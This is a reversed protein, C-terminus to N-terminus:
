RSRDYEDDFGEEASQRAILYAKRADVGALKDARNNYTTFQSPDKQHGRHHVMTVKLQRKLMLRLIMRLCVLTFPCRLSFTGDLWHATGIYDTVVLVRSREPVHKLALAVGLVEATVNKAPTADPHRVFYERWNTMLGVTRLVAAYSGTSSGDTFAVMNYTEWEAETVRRDRRLRTKRWPTGATKPCTSQVPGVLVSRALKLRTHGRPCVVIPKGATNDISAIHAGSGVWKCVPCRWRDLNM